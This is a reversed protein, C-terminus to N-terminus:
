YTTLTRRCVHPWCVFMHIRSCVPTDAPSIAFAYVGAQAGAGALYPTLTAILTHSMLARVAHRGSCYLNEMSIPEGPQYNQEAFLYVTWRARPDTTFGSAIAAGPDLYFRFLRM